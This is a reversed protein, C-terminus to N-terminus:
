YGLDEDVVVVRIQWWYQQWPRPSELLARDVSIDQLDCTFIVSPTAQRYDYVPLVPSTRGIDPYRGGLIAKVDGALHVGIAENEAFIDFYIEWEIEAASSGLELERESQDLPAMAITTPSIEETLPILKAVMKVDRRAPSAEFWGLDTLGDRVLNFLSDKILRQRLGGHVTM